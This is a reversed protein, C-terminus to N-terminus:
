AWFIVQGQFDKDFWALFDNYSLGDNSALLLRGREQLKFESVFFNNGTKRFTSVAIVATDFWIKIQPSNYPKDSWCRISVIDGAKFHNGSRITHIKKRFVDQNLSYFFNHLIQADVDKNLVKLLDYYEDNIKVNMAALFREVFFTDEGERPHGKLFKRSITRVKAM